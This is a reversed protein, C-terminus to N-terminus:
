RIEVISATGQPVVYSAPSDGKIEVAVPAGDETWDLRHAQVRQEKGAPTIRLTLKDTDTCNLLIVKGVAKPLVAERTAANRLYVVAEDRGVIMMDPIGYDAGFLRFEGDLLTEKHEKYFRLWAATQKCQTEPATLFDVSLAPVGNCVMTALFKGVTAADADKKWFMPDNKLVVDYAWPRMQIGALRLVEFSEPADSPQVVDLARKSQLNAHLVRAETVAEPNVSRLGEHIAALCDVFAESMPRDVHEHKASCQPPVSDAADLWMGDIGYTRAVWAFKERLYDRMGVYRPCLCQNEGKSTVVHWDHTRERYAKSEKGQWFPASWLEVRLGMEHVQKVAGPLDPFRDPMATFDGLLGHEFDGYGGDPRCDWGADMLITGIGLEKCKRAIKLFGEQNIHDGYCYWTCFVPDTAWKPVEAHRRGNLEDFTKAYSREVPLWPQAEADVFLSDELRAGTFPADNQRSLTLVYDGGEAAGKLTSAQEAVTWGVAIKNNGEKDTLLIFPAEANAMAAQEFGQPVLCRYIKMNEPWKRHEHFYILTHAIPQTNPVMVAHLGAQPLTVRATYGRVSLKQGAPPDLRFRLLRQSGKTDMRLVLANAQWAYRAETATKSQLAWDAQRDGFDITLDVKPIGEFPLEVGAALSTNTWCLAFGSVVILLQRSRGQM